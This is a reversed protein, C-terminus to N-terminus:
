LVELEAGATLLGRETALRSVSRLAERGTAGLDLTWENVYLEVHKWLVEDSEEQAHTRMSALCADRHELGWVLSARIAEQVRRLVEEGLAKQGAIGGLPLPTSTASEWTEGLDEVRDLGRERWVFRAEHICVGLDARGQELAPIIESFVTQELRVKEPHFLRWLLTATTWRGPCLVLPSPRDPDEHPAPSPRSPSGLVLPGVGFGLASGSPLMVWSSGHAAAAYCSVKAVDYTGKIMQENLEQVDLYDIEFNLGHLSVEKAALAHFTFTDNPCTSIGLRIKM